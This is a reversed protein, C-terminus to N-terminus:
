ELRDEESAPASTMVDSSKGNYSVRCLLQVLPWASEVHALGRFADLAKEDLPRTPAGGLSRRPWHRVLSRRLRQRKADSMDGEVILDGPPIVAEVPQASPFVMIKRLQDNKRLQRLTAEEVGRGIAISVVLLFTGAVVGSLTLLTRVKHRWLAALALRLLDATRM